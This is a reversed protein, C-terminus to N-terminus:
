NQPTPSPTLSPLYPLPNVGSGLIDIDDGADGDPIRSIGTLKDVLMNHFRHLPEEFRPSLRGPEFGGQELGRQAKQVIDIDENNVDIWFARTLEFDEDSLETTSPPLLWGCRERTLGPSIPELIMVFTHNPLVSLLVNPFLTIFRGSQNDSENLGSASPMSSWDNRDDSSVPTTTMGLYMGRGQYRYHDEVRSIKILNPHVFPLHYYESFNESILKWNAGIEVDLGDHFRWNELQYGALRDDLDGFYEEIPPTSPDLCVFLLCGWTTARVESLGHDDHDFGDVGADDFLPTRVLAGDLTYCWRHYPCRITGKVDCDSEALETGRHRCANHFAHVDGDDTLTILLSQGGVKRVLVRDSAAEHAFGVCVWSSGFVRQAEVEFFVQDAYAAAPLSYASKIPARTGSWNNDQTWDVTAGDIARAREVHSGM